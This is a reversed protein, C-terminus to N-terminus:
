LEKYKGARFDAIAQNALKDLKGSKVAQEFQKDWSRADFEEFWERFHALEQESLRAVAHEIEHVTSM